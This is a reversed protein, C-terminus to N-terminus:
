FLFSTFFGLFLYPVWFMFQEFIFAYFGLVSPAGFFFFFFSCVKELLLFELQLITVVM